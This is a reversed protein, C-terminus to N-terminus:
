SQRLSQQTSKEADRRTEDLPKPSNEEIGGGFGDDESATVKEIKEHKRCM